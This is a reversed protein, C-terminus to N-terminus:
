KKLTNFQLYLWCVALFLQVLLHGKTNRGFESQLQTEPKKPERRERKKKENWMISLSWVMLKYNIFISVQWRTNGKKREIRENEEYFLSSYVRIKAERFWFFFYFFHNGMKRTTTNAMMAKVNQVRDREREREWGSFVVLLQIWM